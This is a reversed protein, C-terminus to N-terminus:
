SNTMWDIMERKATTVDVLTQELEELLICLGQLNLKQEVINMVEFIVDQNWFHSLLQL